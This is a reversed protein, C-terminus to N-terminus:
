VYNFYKTFLIECLYNEFIINDRMYERWLYLYVRKFRALSVEGTGYTDPSGSYHESVYIKDPDSKHKYICIEGVRVIPNYERLPESKIRGREEYAFENEIAMAEFDTGETLKYLATNKKEKSIKSKKLSCLLLGRKPFKSIETESFRLKEASKVISLYMFIPNAMNNANSTLVVKLPPLGELERNRSVTEIANFFAEAENKIPRETKEPIFEDFYLVDCDSADFGRLNSFTSLPVLLGKPNGAPALKGKENKITEYFGTVNKGVPFTNINWGRDKNLKKFPMLEPSKLIEVQTQTRRMYIFKLNRDICEQLFGYTKGTGRGGWIACFPFNCDIFYSANLYGNDLYIGM